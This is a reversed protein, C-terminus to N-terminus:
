RLTCPDGTTQSTIVMPAHLSEDGIHNWRHDTYYQGYLDDVDATTSNKFEYISPWQHTYWNGNPYPNDIGLYDFADNKFTFWIDAFTVKRQSNDSNYITVDLYFEDGIELATFPTVEGQVPENILGTYDLSINITQSYM